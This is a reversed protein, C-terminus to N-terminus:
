RKRAVVELKGGVGLADTIVELPYFPLRVGPVDIARMLWKRFPVSMRQNAWLRLSAVTTYYGGFACRARLVEFGAAVLLETLVPKPFVNFHRPADYGIWYRGFLSRDWSSTNPVTIVVIGNDELLGHVRSLTGQPDPIHELVDWFTVATLTKDLIEMDDLTGPLVNLGFHTNAYEAASPSLEVGYAKWGRRQMESLFIGTSCGVDLVVGPVHAAYDEIVRRYKSINRRRMWRMLKWREDEIAKKYPLYEAPYFSAIEEPEPRERLYMLGCQECRVLTFEGPLGFAYDKLAFVTQSSSIGCLNCNVSEM